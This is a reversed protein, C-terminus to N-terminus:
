VPTFGSVTLTSEVVRKRVTVFAVFPLSLWFASSPSTTAAAAPRRGGRGAKKKDGNGRFPRATTRFLPAWSSPDGGLLYSPDATGAREDRDTLEESAAAQATNGSENV